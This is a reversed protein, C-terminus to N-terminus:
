FVKLCISISQFFNHRRGCELSASIFNVVVRLVQIHPSILKSFYVVNSLGFVAHVLAHAPYIVEFASTKFHADHRARIQAGLHTEWDANWSEHKM